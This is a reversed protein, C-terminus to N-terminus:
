KENKNDGEQTLYPKTRVDAEANALPPHIYAKMLILIAIFIHSPKITYFTQQADDLQIEFKEVYGINALGDLAAQAKDESLGAIKAFHGLSFKKEPEKTHILFLCNLIDQNALAEFAKRYEEAKPLVASWGQKPEPFLAFLPMNKTLSIFSIGANNVAKAFITADDSANKQIDDFIQRLEFGSETFEKFGFFGLMVSWCIKMARDMAAAHTEDPIDATNGDCADFPQAVYKTVQTGINSDHNMTERGFLRDISVGFYDAIRPMLEIDPTGGNEWKSVAQSSVGVAKAVDEQKVGKAKRLEAINAGIQEIM